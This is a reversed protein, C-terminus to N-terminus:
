TYIRAGERKLGALALWCREAFVRSLTIEDPATGLVRKTAALFEELTVPVKKALLKHDFAERTDGNKKVQLEYNLQLPHCEVDRRYQIYLREDDSFISAVKDVAVLFDVISPNPTIGHRVVSANSASLREHMEHLIGYLRIWFVPALNENGEAVLKALRAADVLWNMAQRSHIRINRSSESMRRRREACDLTRDVFQLATADPGPVVRPFQYCSFQDEPKCNCLKCEYQDSEVLFCLPPPPEPDPAPGDLDFM